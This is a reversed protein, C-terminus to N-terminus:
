SGVDNSGTGTFINNESTDGVIRTPLPAGNQPPLYSPQMDSKLVWVYQCALVIKYYTESEDQGIVVYTGPNLFIGPSVKGPAWYVQASYPTDGVVSGEPIPLQCGPATLGSVTYTYTCAEPVFNNQFVLVFSDGASVPFSFSRITSDGPDGLYNTANDAGWAPDFGNKFAVPHVNNLGCSIPEWTVTVCGDTGAPGFAGEVTYGYTSSTFTGPFAKGSCNSQTGDRNLRISMTPSTSVTGSGSVALVGAVVVLSLALVFLLALFRKSKLM